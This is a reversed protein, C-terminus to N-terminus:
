ILRILRDALIALFTMISVVGNVNFFAADIKSLDDVRILSHEYVLMISVAFVGLWYFAGLKLTLGLLLLFVVTSLHLATSIKLATAIGFRSPMSHLHEIKDFQVDQLSYIIDFGAVWTMVATCLIWPAIGSITGSAAAWGGLAAGGLAIGLFIHCLWTFRKTYSYLWLWAVAIPSLWLCLRPLQSAAFIMILFSVIALFKAQRSTIRGAPLARKATRPNKADINKDIIRNLTMAACRAGIFAIITWVVTKWSPLDQSALILGSLAFPLAFVSHEIKITEAWERVTTLLQM